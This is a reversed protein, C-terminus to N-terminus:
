LQKRLKDLRDIERQFKRSLNLNLPIALIAFVLFAIIEFLFGPDPNVRRLGYMFLM